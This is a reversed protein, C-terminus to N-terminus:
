AEPQEEALVVDVYTNQRAAMLKILDRLARIIRGSKGIIKGLDEQHAHITLILRSEEESQEVTVDDPHDVISQLLFLLTDKM